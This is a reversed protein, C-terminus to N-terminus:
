HGDCGYYGCGRQLQQTTVSYNKLILDPTDGVWTRSTQAPVRHAFATERTRAFDSDRSTRHRQHPALAPQPQFCRQPTDITPESQHRNNTPGHKIRQYKYQQIHDNPIKRSSQGLSPIGFLIQGAKVTPYTM